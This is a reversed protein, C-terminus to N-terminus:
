TPPAPDRGGGPKEIRSAYFVNPGAVEHLKASAASDVSSTSGTRLRGALADQAVRHAIAEMEERASRSLGGAAGGGTVAAIDIMVGAAAGM